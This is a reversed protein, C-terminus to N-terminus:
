LAEQVTFVVTKRKDVMILRNSYPRVLHLENTPQEAEM